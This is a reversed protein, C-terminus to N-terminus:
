EHLRDRCRMLCVSILLASYMAVVLIAALSTNFVRECWEPRGSIDMPNLTCGVEQLIYLTLGLLTAAVLASVGVALRIVVRGPPAM